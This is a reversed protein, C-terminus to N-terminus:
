DGVWGCVGESQTEVTVTCSHPGQCWGDSNSLCLADCRGQDAGAQWACRLGHDCEPVSIWNGGSDPTEWSSHVGWIADQDGDNDLDAFYLYQPAFAQTKAKERDPSGDQAMPVVEVEPFEIGHDEHVVFSKGKKKSLYFRQRDCVLDWYGDGDLDTLVVDKARVGELGVEKSVNTFHSAEAEAAAQGALLVTLVAVITPSHPM